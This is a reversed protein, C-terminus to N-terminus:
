FSLFLVETLFVKGKEIQRIIGPYKTAEVAMKKSPNYFVQVVWGDPLAALIQNIMM